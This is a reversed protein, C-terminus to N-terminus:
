IVLVEWGVFLVYGLLLLASEARSLTNKSRAFVFFLLLGIVLFSLRHAVFNPLYIPQGYFLTLVGLILTNASASGLYDALALEEQKNFISRAVLSLEPLNTGLSIVILSVFFPSVQIYEAFFLTSTVIQQSALWLIAVGSGIKLAEKGLSLKQTTVSALMKEWWPRKQMLFLFLLFYLLILLVAEAAEIQQDFTLLSPALVVILTLVIQNQTLLKPIKIGANLFALLPIILLFVVIVGGLLNGVFIEPDAGQLASVGISIEPLSTMLGLVFFSLTFVPLRWLKAIRLAASIVIGAAFWLGLFSLGYLFAHWYVATM